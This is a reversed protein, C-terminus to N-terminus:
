VELIRDLQRQARILEENVVRLEYGKLMVRGWLVNPDAPIVTGDSHVEGLEHHAADLFYTMLGYKGGFLILRASYAARDKFQEPIM